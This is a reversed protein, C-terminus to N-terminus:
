STGGCDKPEQVWDVAASYGLNQADFSFGSFGVEPHISVNSWRCFEAETVIMFGYMDSQTDIYLLKRDRGSLWEQMWTAMVDVSTSNETWGAEAVRGLYAEEAQTLAPLGEAALLAQFWPTFSEAGEKWDLFVAADYDQLAWMAVLADSAEEFSDQKAKEIAIAFDPPNGGLECAAQLWIAADTAAPCDQAVAASSLWFILFGATFSKLVIV